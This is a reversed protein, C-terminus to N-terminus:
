SWHVNLCMRIYDPRKLPHLPDVIILNVSKLEGTKLFITMVRADGNVENDYKKQELNKNLEAKVM